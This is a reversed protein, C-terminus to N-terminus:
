YKEPTAAPTAKYEQSEGSIYPEGSGNLLIQANALAERNLTTDKAGTEIAMEAMVAKGAYPNVVNIHFHDGTKYRSSTLYENIVSLDLRKDKNLKKMEADLTASINVRKGNKIGTDGRRLYKRGNKAPKYNVFDVAYGAGHQWLIHKGGMTCTVQLEYGLAGNKEKLLKLKAAMSKRMPFGLYRVIVDGSAKAKALTKSKLKSAATRTRSRAAAKAGDEPPYLKDLIQEELKEVEQEIDILITKGGIVDVAQRIVDVEPFEQRPKQTGPKENMTLKVIRCNNKDKEDPYVEYIITSVLVDKGNITKIKFITFKEPIEPIDMNPKTHFIKLKETSSLNVVNVASPNKECFLKISAFEKYISDSSTAQKQLGLWIKLDSTDKPPAKVTPNSPMPKPAAQALIQYDPNIGM